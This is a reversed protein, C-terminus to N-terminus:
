LMWEVPLVSILTVAARRFIGVNPEGDYQVVGQPTRELWIMSGDEDLKVEYANDLVDTNFVRQMEQALEPSEIIFGLETNLRASRPDFNFSGVFLRDGDVAFTKAHLSAGSSGFPGASESRGPADPARKLEFLRVGAEL